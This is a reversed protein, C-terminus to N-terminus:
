GYIGGRPGIDLVEITGDERERFIARWSGIRLRYGPRGVLPRVDPPPDSGEALRELADRMRAMVDRPAKRLGKAARRTYVIQKM